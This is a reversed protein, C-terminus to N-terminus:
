ALKDAMRHLLGVVVPQGLLQASLEYSAGYDANKARHIATMPELVAEFGWAVKRGRGAM